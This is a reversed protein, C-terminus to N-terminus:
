LLCSVCTVHAPQISLQSSSQRSPSPVSPPKMRPSASASGLYLCFYLHLGVWEGESRHVRRTRRPRFRTKVRKQKGERRADKGRNTERPKRDASRRIVEGLILGGDNSMGLSHLAPTTTSSPGLKRTSTL